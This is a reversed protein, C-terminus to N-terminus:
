VEIFAVVATNNDVDEFKRIDARARLSALWEQASYVRHLDLMIEEEWLREWLGDTCLLFAHLGPKLTVQKHIQPKITEEGLVYLLKSRDPHTPIQQRTINGQLVHLQCVSQDVSYDELNGNYFHYLRSDGTHAWIAQDEAFYLAVATTKMHWSGERKRLIESNAQDMWSRIKQEDPLPDEIRYQSLAQAAIKSADAGGGHSGLGDAVVAFGRSDTLKGCAFSDENERRDGIHTYSCIDIKMM